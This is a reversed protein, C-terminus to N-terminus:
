EFSDDLIRLYMPDHEAVSSSPAFEFLSLDFTYLPIIQSHEQPTRLQGINGPTLMSQLLGGALGALPVNEEEPDYFIKNPDPDGDSLM